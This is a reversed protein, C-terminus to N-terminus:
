REILIHKLFALFYKPAAPDKLFEQVPTAHLAGVNDGSEQNMIRSERKELQHRWYKVFREPRSDM